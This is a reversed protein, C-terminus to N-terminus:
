NDILSALFRILNEREKSSIVRAVQQWKEQRKAAERMLVVQVPRVAALTIYPSTCQKGDRRVLDCSQTVVMFYKYDEHDAYYPHYCSLHDLIDRTKSLIDGQCLTGKNPERYVYHSPM